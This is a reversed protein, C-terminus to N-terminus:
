IYVCQTYNTPRSKNEMCLATNKDINIVIPKNILEELEKFVKRSYKETKETSVLVLFEVKTNSIFIIPQLKSKFFM